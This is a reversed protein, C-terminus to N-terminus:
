IARHNLHSNPLINMMAQATDLDKRVLSFVRAGLASLRQATAYGIQGCGGTIVVIKNELLNM